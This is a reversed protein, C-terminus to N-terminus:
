IDKITYGMGVLTHLLKVPYDNDIKKRLFNIYVEITNTGSDFTINWIKEAIEAKSLVRNKNLTLLELLAYEKATLKIEKGARKVRKTHTNLEMDVVKLIHDENKTDDDQLNRKLLSKIRALLEPFDFPKILYDDAGAEFGELKDNLSGLATLMLIKTKSDTERIKKCLEIGNLQPIIVDLVILDYKNSFALKRGCEGDYAFDVDFGNEELGQKIFQLVRAEDEVILIKLGEM